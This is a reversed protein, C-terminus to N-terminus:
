LKALNLGVAFRWGTLPSTAYRVRRKFSSYEYEVEGSETSLMKEAAVKLSPSDKTLPNDFVLNMKQHLVTTGDRDLVYFLVGEPLSLVLTLTQDLKELFLTSGVAGIMRNRDDLIPLATVVSKKGTSKSVVLSGVVSKGALLEAFYPRTKLNQDALGKDATYYRGDPMAFWYVGGDGWSQQFAAITKQMGAWEGRQVQPLRVLAKIIGEREIIVEDVYHMMTSILANSYAPFGAKTENVPLGATKKASGGGCSVLAMCGALVAAAFVFFLSNTTKKLKVEWLIELM